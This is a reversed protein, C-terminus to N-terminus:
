HQIHVSSSSCRGRGGMLVGNGLDNVEEAGVSLVDEVQLLVLGEKIRGGGGRGGVVGGGEEVGGLLEGCQLFLWSVLVGLTSCTGLIILIGKVRSLCCSRMTHLPVGGEGGLWGRLREGEGVGVRVGMDKLVFVGARDGM